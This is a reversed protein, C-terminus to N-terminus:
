FRRNNRLAVQAVVTSTGYQLAGGPGRIRESTQGTLTLAIRAVRPALNTINGNADYYAFQLGNVTVPGVIPEITSWVLNAKNQTTMGIWYKGGADVYRMVQVIKYGKLPAGTTVGALQAATVGSLTLTISAAGGPCATGNTRATANVRLWSDDSRVTPDNESFLMFLHENIDLAQMGFWPAARVTIQLAANPASCLFYTNRPSNYTLAWSTMALIDSGSPDSADLERLESPLISVASRVNQNLDMRAAQEQYLRQNNNLLKYISVSVIGMLTMAVLIEAFTFGRRTM